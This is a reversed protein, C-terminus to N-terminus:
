RPTKAPKNSRRQDRGKLTQDESRNKSQGCSFSQEQLRGSNSIVKEIDQKIPKLSVQLKKKAM